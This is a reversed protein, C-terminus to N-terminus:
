MVWHTSEYTCLLSGALDWYLLFCLHGSLQSLISSCDKSCYGSRQLRCQAIKSDLWWDSQLRIYRCWTSQNNCVFLFVNELFEYQAKDIKQRKAWIHWNCYKPAYKFVRFIALHSVWSANVGLDFTIVLHFVIPKMFIFKRFLLTNKHFRKIHLMDLDNVPILLITIPLPTLHWTHRLDDSLPSELRSCGM